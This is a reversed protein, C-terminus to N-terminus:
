IDVVISDVDPDPEQEQIRCIDVRKEDLAQREALTRRQVRALLQDLMLFNDIDEAFKRHKRSRIHGQFDEFKFRCSECYGPKSGEERKPLKLTNTSKSKKLVAHRQPVEPPPAMANAQALKEQPQRRMVIEQRMRGSLNSPIHLTRSTYNATSTTGTTSTVSVSNGSAAMHGTFGSALYGSANVSEVADGEGEQDVFVDARTANRMNIMSVSRRLDGAKRAVLRPDIRKETVQKKLFTECRARREAKEKKEADQLREWRKKEKEDFLIFPGRAQPHCYLTPWPTKEGEREKHAPYEHAAITALEGRIDEVLVFYSGRTFYRFDHRKQTPDRESLGHIRESQLLKSLNHQNRPKSNNSLTGSATAPEDLCRSLVSELKVSDWIKKGFALADKILDKTKQGDLFHRSPSGAPQGHQTSVRPDNYNEKESIDTQSPVPRDSVVHTVDASFFPDIKGGLREIRLQFSELRKDNLSLTDLYFTWSPFARRYKERFEIRQQEREAKQQERLKPADHNREKKITKTPPNANLTIPKHRKILSGLNHAASDPSRARKPQQTPKLSRAPSPIPLLSQSTRTTLPHRSLNSM